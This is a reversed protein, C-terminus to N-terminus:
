FRPREVELEALAVLAETGGALARGVSISWERELAAVREPLEEAVGRRRM